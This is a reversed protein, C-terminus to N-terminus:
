FKSSLLRTRRSRRACRAGSRAWSWRPAASSSCTARRRWGGSAVVDGYGLAVYNEFAFEFTEVNPITIGALMMFLAWVSIESVHAVTLAIVTVTLLATVRMFVHLDDTKGAVHRTVVIILGTMVAHIGFNALSILAGCLLQNLM